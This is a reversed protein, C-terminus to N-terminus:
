SNLVDVMTGVVEEMEPIFHAYSRLTVMVDKHGLLGRETTDIL